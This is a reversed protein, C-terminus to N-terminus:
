HKCTQNSCSGNNGEILKKYENNSKRQEDKNNNEKRKYNILVDDAFFTYSFHEVAKIISKFNRLYKVNSEERVQLYLVYSQSRWARQICLHYNRNQPKDKQNEQIIKNRRWEEGNKSHKVAM